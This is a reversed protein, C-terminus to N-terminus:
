PSIVNKYFLIKLNHSSFGKYFCKPLKLHKLISKILMLFNIYWKGFSNNLLLYNNTFTGDGITIKGARKFLKFKLKLFFFLFFMCKVFAYLLQWYFTQFYSQTLLLSITEWFPSYAAYFIFNETVSKTLLHSWIRLFTRIQDCRSFFHKISFKMKTCHFKQNSKKAFDILWSFYLLLVSIFAATKHPSFTLIVQWRIPFSFPFKSWTLFLWM